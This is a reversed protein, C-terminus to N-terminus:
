NRLDLAQNVLSDALKNKERGIHIFDVKGFDLTLNWLEIFLPHLTPEKVKYQHNLQKVLLESDLYCELPLTKAKKKGIVQKAKKLAEIAARYEAVNNTTEGICEKLEWSKGEFEIVAGISAPGPNGRAGGDSHIIIKSM